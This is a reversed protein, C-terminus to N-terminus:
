HRLPRERAPIGAYRARSALADCRRKVRGQKPVTGASAVRETSSLNTWKLLPLRASVQERLSVILPM